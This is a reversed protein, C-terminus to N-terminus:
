AVGSETYRGVKLDLPSAVAPRGLAVLSGPRSTSSHFPRETSRGAKKALAAKREARAIKLISIVGDLRMWDRGAAVLQRLVINWCVRPSEGPTSEFLALIMARDAAAAIERVDKTAERDNIRLAIKSQYRLSGGFELLSNLRSFSSFLSVDDTEVVLRFREGQLRECNVIKFM